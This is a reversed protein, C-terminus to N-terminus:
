FGCRSSVTEPYDFRRTPTTTPSTTQIVVGLQQSSLHKYKGVMAALYTYEKRFTLLTYPLLFEITAFFCSVFSQLLLYEFVNLNLADSMPINLICMGSWGCATTQAVTSISKGFGEFICWVGLVLCHAFSNWASDAIHLLSEMLSINHFHM